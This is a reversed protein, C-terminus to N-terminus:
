VNIVIGRVKGLKDLILGFRDGPKLDYFDINMAKDNRKLIIVVDERVSLIPSITESNDDMHQEVILKKNECNVKLITGYIFREGNEYDAEPFDVYNKENEKNPETSFAATYSMFILIFVVSILM